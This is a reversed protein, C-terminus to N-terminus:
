PISAYGASGAAIPLSALISGINAKIRIPSVNGNQLKYTGKTFGPSGPVSALSTLDMLDTDLNTRVSAVPKGSGPLQTCWVNLIGM